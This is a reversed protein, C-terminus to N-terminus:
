NFFDAHAAFKPYASKKNNLLDIVVPANELIVRKRGRSHGEHSCFLFASADNCYKGKIKPTM